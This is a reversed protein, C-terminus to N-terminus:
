ALACHQLMAIRIRHSPYGTCLSGKVGSAQCLAREADKGGTRATDFFTSKGRWLGMVYMYLPSFSRNSIRSHMSSYESPVMSCSRNLANILLPFFAPLFSPLFSPLFFFLFSRIFPQIFSVFIWHGVSRRFLSVFWRISSQNISQNISQIFSNIFSHM